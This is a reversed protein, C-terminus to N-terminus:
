AILPRKNALIDAAIAAAEDVSATVRRGPILSATLDIGESYDEDDGDMDDEDTNSRLGHCAAEAPEEIMDLSDVHHDRVDQPMAALQTATAYVSELHAPLHQALLRSVTKEPSKINAATLVSVLAAKLQSGEAKFYGTSTGVAAIAMAQEMAETAQKTSATLNAKIRQHELKLRRAMVPSAQLNVKKTVFGNSQLAARLGQRKVEAKMATAFAPTGYHADIGYRKAGLKSLTAVVSTNKVALLTNAQMVFALNEVTDDAEEIDLMPVADPNSADADEMEVEDDDYDSDDGGEDFDATLDQGIPDDEEDWDMGDDAEGDDREDLHSEADDYEDEGEDDLNDDEEDEDGFAAYVNSGNGQANELILNSKDESDGEVGDDALYDEAPDDDNDLTSINTSDDAAVMRRARNRVRPRGRGISASVRKPGSDGNPFILDEAVDNEPDTLTAGLEGNTVLLDSYDPDPHTSDLNSFQLTGANLKAKLRPNRVPRKKITM